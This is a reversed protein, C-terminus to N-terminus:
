NLNPNKNREVGDEELIVSNRDDGRLFGGDLQCDIGEQIMDLLTARPFPLQQREFGQIVTKILKALVHGAEHPDAFSWHIETEVSSEGRKTAKIFDEDEAQEM